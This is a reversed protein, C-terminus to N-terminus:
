YDPRYETQVKIRGTDTLRWASKPGHLDPVREIHGEDRLKYFEIKVLNESKIGTVDRAQRNTIKENNSLFKLIAEAPAALPAHPLTVKVYNGDEVIIPNRLGWEKMKQFTTNLGEGLDKNPANKYRALIGVIKSNRSFRADLINEVTVYGPLRGPSLIEIRDDFILIQIDDSISYDRHIVANAITEWIAEPPYDLRKLGDSSWVQVASMIKRVTEVTEHILNYCPGEITEQVALHDREPDDERTEYRTIKVACKRPVVAPPIPHFLVAAATKPAWTKYDVLHRNIVFDLPDTKPSLDNLFRELEDSEVIVEPPIDDINKDEFSQSGKAFSLQTISTPDTIKLSQAGHRQYVIDSSTKHVEQTKNILIRIVYGKNSYKLFEYNIDIPPSINFLVQLISNMDEIQSFGKWREIASSSISIDEIGIFLEGGDANSFSTAIKEINAPKISSSKFDLFHSEERNCINVVESESIERVFM